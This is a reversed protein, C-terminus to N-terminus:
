DLRIDILNPYIEHLKRYVKPYMGGSFDFDVGLAVSAIGLSDVSVFCINMSDSDSLDWGSVFVDKDPLYGLYSEQGYLSRWEEIHEDFYRKPMGNYRMIANEAKEMIKGMYIFDFFEQGTYTLNDPYNEAIQKFTSGVFEIKRILPLQHAENSKWYSLMHFSGCLVNGM